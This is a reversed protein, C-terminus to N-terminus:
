GHEGCVGSHDCYPRNATRGCGCLMVRTEQRPGEPAAVELDGRPHLVGDDRLPVSWASGCCSPSATHSRHHGHSGM